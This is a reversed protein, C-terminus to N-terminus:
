HLLKDTNAISGPIIWLLVMGGAQFRDVVDTYSPYGLAQDIEKRYIYVLSIMYLSSRLDKWRNLFAPKM